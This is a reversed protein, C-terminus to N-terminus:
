AAHTQLNWQREPAPTTRSLAGASLRRTRFCANRVHTTGLEFPSVGHVHRHFQSLAKRTEALLRERCQDKRRESCRFLAEASPEHLIRNLAIVKVEDDFCLFLARKRARHLAERNAEGTSQVRVDTPTASDKQVSVVRPGQTSGLLNTSSEEVHQLIMSVVDTYSV